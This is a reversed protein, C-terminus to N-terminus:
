NSQAEKSGYLAMVREKVSNVWVLDPMKKTPVREALELVQEIDALAEEYRGVQLLASGRNARAELHDPKRELLMTLDRIAEDFHGLYILSMGHRYLSTKKGPKIALVQEFDALSGEYDGLQQKVWGRAEWAALYQPVLEVVRDFCPLADKFEGMRIYTWGKHHHAWYSDADLSIAEDLVKLSIDFRKQHRYTRGLWTLTIVREETNLGSRQLLTQFAPLVDDYRAEDFARVAEALQTGLMKKNEAPESEEQVQRMTEAWSQAFHPDAQLARLFGRLAWPEESTPAASYRHYLHELMETQWAANLWLVWFPEDDRRSLASIKREYFRALNQHVERYKSLSEKQNQYIMQTRVVEHYYAWRDVREQVFPLGTLWSYYASGNEVVVSLIEASLRRPVAAELALRREQPDSVWKLFRTVALESHDEVSSLLQPRSAALTAVLLPLRGSTRLIEEIVPENTVQKEVLYRRAELPTFPELPVRVIVTEFWSWDNPNLPNRGSFIIILNGPIESEGVIVNRWWSDLFEATQEYSDCFLVIDRTLAVHNLDEFFIPTLVTTPQRILQVLDDDKLQRRVFLGWDEDPDSDSLMDGPSNLRWQVNPRTQQCLALLDEIVGQRECYTVLERARGLKTEAALNEYEINLEFCLTRLEEQTFYQALLTHLTKHSRLPLRAALRDKYALELQQQQQTYQRHRETFRFLPKGQKEFQQAFRVLTDVINQEAEDTLATIAGSEQAIHQCQKVFTSKGVGGQGYVSFIFRRENDDIPLSLHHRFLEVQKDRGVFEQKQRKRVIEQLSIRKPTM